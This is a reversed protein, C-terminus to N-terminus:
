GFKGARPALRLVAKADVAIDPDAGNMFSHIAAGIAIIKRAFFRQSESIVSLMIVQLRKLAKLCDLAGASLIPEVVVLFIKITM